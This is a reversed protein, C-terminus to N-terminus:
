LHINTVFYLIVVSCDVPRFFRFLSPVLSFAQNESLLPFYINSTYPPLASPPLPYHPPSIMHLFLLAQPFPIHYHTSPTDDRLPALSGLHLLSWPTWPTVRASVGILPPYPAQLPWRRYGPLVELPPTLVGVWRSFMQGM